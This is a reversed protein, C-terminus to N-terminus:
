DYILLHQPFFSAQFNTVDSGPRLNKFLSLIKKAFNPAKYAPEADSDKELSSPKMLVIKTEQSVAPPKAKAQLFELFSDVVTEMGTCWRRLLRIDEITINELIGFVLHNKDGYNLDIKFKLSVMM